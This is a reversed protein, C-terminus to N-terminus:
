QAVELSRPGVVRAAVIQNSQANVVRVLEGESGPELARGEMEIRFGGASVVVKVVEGRKVLREEEISRRPVPQGAVLPRRVERGVLANLEAVVLKPSPVHVVQLTFDSERLVHGRTLTRRPVPMTLTTRLPIVLRRTFIVRGHHRAVLEASVMDADTGPTRAAEFTIGPGAQPLGPIRVHEIVEHSSPPVVEALAAEPTPATTALFALLCSAKVM